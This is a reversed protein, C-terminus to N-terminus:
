PKTFFASVRAELFSKYDPHNVFDDLGANKLRLLCITLVKEKSLEEKLKASSYAFSLKGNISRKFKDVGQIPKIDEVIKNLIDRWPRSDQEVNFSYGINLDYWFYNVGKSNYSSKSLTEVYYNEDFNENAKPNNVNSKITKGSHLVVGDKEAIYTIEPPLLQIMRIAAAHASVRIKRVIMSHLQGLNDCIRFQEFIWESPMLLEAAFRNAEQEILYYMLDNYAAGYINDVITGIHWPIILHGLEHALTFLRRGLPLNSNVIVKPKKGIVKLNVCVGDVGDVPIDRYLLDAYEKVLADLDFPISLSHKKRIIKAMKIEPYEVGM